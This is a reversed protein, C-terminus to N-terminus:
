KTKSENIENQKRQNRKIENEKTETENRVLYGLSIGLSSVYIIGVFYDYVQLPLFTVKNKIETLFIVFFKM